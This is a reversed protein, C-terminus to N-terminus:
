RLFLVQLSGGFFGGVLVVQEALTHLTVLPPGNALAKYNLSVRV